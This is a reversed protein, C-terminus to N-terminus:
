PKLEKERQQMLRKLLESESGSSASSGSSPATSAYTDSRGSMQWEGADQRRMQMGVGLDLVKGNTELKVAKPGIERVRFGALTDGAKAAKRYESGTGDFFAFRGKEYSMTGVLSFSDVSAPKPQEAGGVRTRSRRNPDFINREMIIKFSSLDRKSASAKPASALSGRANAAPMNVAPIRAMAAGSMEDRSRSGNRASREDTLGNTTSLNAGGTRIVSSDNNPLDNTGVGHTMSPPSSPLITTPPNTVAVGGVPTNGGLEAAHAQVALWFVCALVGPAAVTRHVRSPSSNQMRMM